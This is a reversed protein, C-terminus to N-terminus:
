RDEGIDRLKNRGTVFEKVNLGVLKGLNSWRRTIPCTNLKQGIGFDNEREVAVREGDVLKTKGRACPDEQAGALIPGPVVVPDLADKREIVFVTGDFVVEVLPDFVGEGAVQM